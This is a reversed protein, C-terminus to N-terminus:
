LKRIDDVIAEVLADITHPNAVVNVNIGIKRAAELTVPGICAVRVHGLFKRAEVEGLAHSFNSVTSPSTFTVIDVGAEITKRLEESSLERPPVTTYATVEDVTAGRSRLLLPLKESAIDARPLLIRKGQLNGLGLAIRESLFEAPIYDAKRGARELAAATASGIAAVRVSNLVSIHAQVCAMRRSFFDVGNVSTFIIWDYNGLNKIASDLQDTNTPPEIEITPVEITTAGLVQLKSSLAKAQGAARTVLVRRGLLPKTTQM